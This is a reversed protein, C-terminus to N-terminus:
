LMSWNDHNFPAMTIENLKGRWYNVRSDFELENKNKKYFPTERMRDAESPDISPRPGYCNVGYQANEDKDYGGNVGPVGCEKEHGPTKQLKEWKERQTPFLAMQEDSWSATCWDAGKDYATKMEDFTALRADYAQCVAQADQYNYKKDSLNFVQENLMIKIKDDFDGDDEALLQGGRREDQEGFTADFTKLLDIGFIYSVGNLLLLVIFLLWLVTEVFSKLPSSTGNENNGLSSFINYYIFILAIIGLLLLPKFGVYKNQLKKELRQLQSSHQTKSKSSTM